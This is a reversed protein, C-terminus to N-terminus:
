GRVDFRSSMTLKAEDTVVPVVTSLSPVPATKMTMPFNSILSVTGGYIQGVFRGGGNQVGNAWDVKCPTYIFWEINSISQAKDIKIDAAPSACTPSSGSWNVGAADAPTMLYLKRVQSADSSKVNLQNQSTFGRPLVLAVDVQLNLSANSITPTSTCADFFVISKAGTLGNLKNVLPSGSCESGTLYVPAWGANTWKTREGSAVSLNLQPMNERPPAKLEYPFGLSVPLQPHPSLTTPMVFPTNPIKNAATLPGTIPGSARATGGVTGGNNVTIPGASVYADGTVKGKGFSIL